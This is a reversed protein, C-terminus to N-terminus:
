TLKEKMHHAARHIWWAAEHQRWDEMEPSLLVYRKEGAEFTVRLANGYDITDVQIPVGPFREELAQQIVQLKETQNFDM